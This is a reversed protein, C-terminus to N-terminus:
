ELFARQEGDAELIYSVPRNIHYEYSGEAWSSGSLMIVHPGASYGQADTRLYPLDKM